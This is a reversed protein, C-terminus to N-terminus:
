SHAIAAPGPIHNSSRRVYIWLYFIGMILLILPVPRLFLIFLLQGPLSTMSPHLGKTLTVLVSLPIDGTAAIGTATTLLALWGTLGGEAWLMACAPITLLLLKADQPRHYTVILTLPVIAALALWGTAESFRSRLTRASWALLPIACVLYAVPYYFRPDDRFVSLVSALDIVMGPTRSGTGTPGPDNMSGHASITALNAHLEQIWNPAIQSVWLMAPIGLAAAVVLTQLARKRRIGGALLFYLWILGADHPKIALSVALCLIGAPVFREKLFCWTAIACFSVVIGAANGTSLLHLSSTVALFALLAGSLVPAKSAGVDWMLFAALIFSGATLILWLLHAPGWPLMAFPVIFVFTTPLYVNLSLALPSGGQTGPAGGREAEFVRLLEAENYPDRHQLMCRADYYVGKFDGMSDSGLHEVVLGVLIFLLSGLLFLYLGDLRARTM